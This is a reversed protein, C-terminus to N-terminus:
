DKKYYDTTYGDARLVLGKMWDENQSMIEAMEKLAETEKAKPVEAIVEDHVHFKINFGAADLRLMAQALCDRATAQVINEVIKGGYTRETIWTGKDGIGEYAIEDKYQGKILRAKAYTIYRGSPLYVFLTGRKLVFSVNRVKYTLGPNVIAKRMASECDSWYKVIKPNAKRWKVVLEPYEEEPISHGTDMAALANSGGGYGLALSAIKGKQRLESGKTVSEIPVQFMNAATAEYIKGTTRFVENVWEEGALWAIVRAEIASYDAVAFSYSPRPIFATRILQSFVDSVSRYCIDLTDFDNKLVLNRALDLDILYNRPLNHLQVIRGAWRGTRNAGYYMLMGKVTGDRCLAGLMAEYKKVSTKGLEQRIELLEKVELDLGETKLIEKVAAKDVSTANIGKEELFKKIQINSNPNDLGTTTTAKLLLDDQYTNNYRVINKALTQNIRVGGQNIKQDLAWVRQEIEAPAPYQSLRDYLIMDTIVDQRNYEIFLQWREPAHWPYNRTRGGNTRTPKCPKCFFQILSKGEKMKKQDEALGMAEGCQELSRPYGLMASLSATCLWQSADLWGELMPRGNVKLGRLYNSLATIEFNANRAVKLINPDLIWKIVQQLDEAQQQEHGDYFIGDIVKQSLTCLDIVNVDHEGLDDYFGYALLLIEFSPDDAYKFAGTKKIDVESYTELDIFLIPKSTTM